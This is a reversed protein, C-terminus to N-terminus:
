PGDTIEIAKQSIPPCKQVMNGPWQQLVDINHRISQEMHHNIQEPSDTSHM